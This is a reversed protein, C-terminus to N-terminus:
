GRIEFLSITNYGFYLAFPSFLLLLGKVAAGMVDIHPSVGVFIIYSIIWLLVGFVM